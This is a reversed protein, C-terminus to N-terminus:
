LAVLFLTVENSPGAPSPPPPRVFSRCGHGYCTIDCEVCRGLTHCVVLSARFLFSSRSSLFFVFLFDFISM